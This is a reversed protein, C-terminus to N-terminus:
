DRAKEAQSRRLYYPELAALADYDFAPAAPLALAMGALVTAQPANMHALGYRVTFPAEDLLARYELAGSGLALVAPSQVLALFEQPPLCCPPLLPTLDPAYLAAYVEGMRADICALVPL